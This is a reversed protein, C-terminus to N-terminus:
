QSVKHYTRHKSQNEFLMLNGINNDDKIGNIHHIVESSKLRRGLHKEMVSRHEYVYKNSNNLISIYGNTYHRGGNWWPNNERRQEKSRTKDACSRSCHTRKGILSPVVKYEKNCYKCTTLVHQNWKGGM